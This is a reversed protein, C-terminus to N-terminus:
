LLPSLVLSTKQIKFVEKFVSYKIIIHQTNLTIGALDISICMLTQFLPCRVTIRSTKVLFIYNIEIVGVYFDNVFIQVSKTKVHISQLM